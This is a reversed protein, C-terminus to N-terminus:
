GSYIVDLGMRYAFVEITKEVSSWEGVFEEIMMRSGSEKGKFAAVMRPGHFVVYCNTMGFERKIDDYLYQFLKDKPSLVFRRDIEIDHIGELDSAIMWHVVESGEQMLGKVLAGEEELERLIRRIELM